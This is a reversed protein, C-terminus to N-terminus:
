FTDLNIGPPFIPMHVEPLLQRAQEENIEQEQKALVHGFKKEMMSNHLTAYFADFDGLKQVRELFEDSGPAQFHVLEQYKRKFVPKARDLASVLGNTEMFETLKIPLLQYYLDSFFSTLSPDEKAHALMRRWKLPTFREVHDEPEPQDQLYFFDRNVANWFHHFERASFEGEVLASQLALIGTGLGIAGM